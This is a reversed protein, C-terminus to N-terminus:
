VRMLPQKVKGQNEGPRQTTEVEQNKESHELVSNLQSTSLDSNTKRTDRIRQFVGLYDSASKQIDTVIQSAFTALGNLDSARQSFSNTNDQSGQLFGGFWATASTQRLATPGLGWGLTLRLIEGLSYGCTQANSTCHKLAKADSTISNLHSVVNGAVKVWGTPTALSEIKSLLGTFNCDDNFGKVDSLLKKINSFAATADTANGTVASEVEKAISGVLSGLSSVDSACVSNSGPTEIGTLFGGLFSSTQRLTVRPTPTQIGWNFVLRFIQALQFGCGTLDTPCTALGKACDFLSGANAMVNVLIQKWGAETSLSEFQTLLSNWKCDSNPNTLTSILAKVDTLLQMIAMENGGIIRTIDSIVAHIYDMSTTLDNACAGPSNSDLELGKILGTIVGMIDTVPAPKQSLKSCAVGLLVILLTAAKMNKDADKPRDPSLSRFPKSFSVSQSQRSEM